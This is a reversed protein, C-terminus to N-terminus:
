NSDRQCTLIKGGSVMQVKCDGPNTVLFDYDDHPMSSTVMGSDHFSWSNVFVEEDEELSRIRCKVRNEKRLEEPINSEDVYSCETRIVDEYEM